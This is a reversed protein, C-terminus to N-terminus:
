NNQRYWTPSVYLTHQIDGILTSCLSEQVSGEGLSTDEFAL